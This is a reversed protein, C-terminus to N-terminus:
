AFNAREVVIRYGLESSELRFRVAASFLRLVWERKAPTRTGTTRAASISPLSPSGSPPISRNVM